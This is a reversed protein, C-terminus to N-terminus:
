STSRQEHGMGVIRFFDDMALFRGDASYAVSVGRYPFRRAQNTETDLVTAGLRICALALSSDTPSFAARTVVPQSPVRPLNVIKDDPSTGSRIALRVSSGTRGGFVLDFLERGHLESASRIEADDGDAIGVIRDGKAVKGSKAAPEDPFLDNSQLGMRASALIYELRAGM